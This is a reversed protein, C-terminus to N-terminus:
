KVLDLNGDLVVPGTCEIEDRLFDMKKHTPVPNLLFIKKGFYFAIMMEAFTAGGIYNPIGNKDVNVVLIADANRIENFHRITLDPKVNRVFEKGRKLREAECYDNIGYRELSYPIVVEHGRELLGARIERIKEPFNVSGCIVIKM